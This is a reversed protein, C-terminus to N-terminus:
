LREERQGGPTMKGLGGSLSRSCGCAELQSTRNGAHGCAGARQWEGHHSGSVASSLCSGRIRKKKALDGADVVVGPSRVGASGGLCDLKM